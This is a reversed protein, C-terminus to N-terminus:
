TSQDAVRRASAFHQAGDSGKTECREEGSGWGGGGLLRRFAKRNKCSFRMVKQGTGKYGDDRMASQIESTELRLGREAM